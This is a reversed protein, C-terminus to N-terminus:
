ALYEGHNGHHNRQKMEDVAVATFRLFLVTTPRSARERPLCSGARSAQSVSYSGRKFAQQPPCGAVSTAVEQVPLPHHPYQYEQDHTEDEAQDGSKQCGDCHPIAQNSVTQKGLMSNPCPIMAPDM